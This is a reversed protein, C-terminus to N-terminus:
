RRQQQRQRDAVADALSAYQKQKGAGGAGGHQAGSGQAVKFFARLEADRYKPFAADLPENDGEAGMRMMLVENGHSDETVVLREAIAKEVYPVLDPNAVQAAVSAALSSAKGSRMVEHRKARESAATSKLAAIEADLKERERRQEAARRQEASMKAEEAKTKEAEIEALKAEYEAIKGLLPSTERKIKATLDDKSYVAPPKPPTTVVANADGTQGQTSTTGNADAGAQTTDTTTEDAM